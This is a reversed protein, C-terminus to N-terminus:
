WVYTRCVPDPVLFRKGCGIVVSVLERACMQMCADLNAPLPTPGKIRHMRYKAEDVGVRDSKSRINVKKDM